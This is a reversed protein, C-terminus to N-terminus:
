WALCGVTGGYSVPHYSVGGVPLGDAIIALWFSQSPWAPPPRLDQDLDFESVCRDFVDARDGPLAEPLAVRDREVVIVREGDVAGASGARLLVLDGEGVGALAVGDRAAVVTRSM